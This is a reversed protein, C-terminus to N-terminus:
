HTIKFEFASVRLRPTTMGIAIMQLHRSKLKRQLQPAGQVEEHKELDQTSPKSSLSGERKVDNVAAKKDVKTIADVNPAM